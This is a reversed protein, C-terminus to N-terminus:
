LKILREVRTALLYDRIRETELAVEDAVQDIVDNITAEDYEGIRRLQDQIDHIIKVTNLCIYGMVDNYFYTIGGPLRMRLFHDGDRLRPYKPSIDAAIDVGGDGDVVNVVIKLTTNFM